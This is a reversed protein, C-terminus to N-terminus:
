FNDQVSYLTCMINLFSILVIKLGPLLILVRAFDGVVPYLSQGSNSSCINSIVAQSSALHYLLEIVVVCMRPQGRRLVSRLITGLTPDLYCEMQHESCDQALVVLIDLANSM